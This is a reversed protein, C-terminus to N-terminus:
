LVAKTFAKTLRSLVKNYLSFMPGIKVSFTDLCNKNKHM